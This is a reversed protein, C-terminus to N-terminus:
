QLIDTGLLIGYNKQAGNLKKRDFFEIDGQIITGSYINYWYKAM